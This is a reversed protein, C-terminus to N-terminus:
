FGTSAELKQLQQVVERCRQLQAEMNEHKAQVPDYILSLWITPIHSNGSVLHELDRSAKTHKLAEEMNVLEERLQAEEAAECKAGEWEAVFPEPLAKNAEPDEEQKAM